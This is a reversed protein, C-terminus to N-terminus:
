RVVQVNFAAGEYKWGAPKEGASATLLHDGNAKNFWRYIPSAGASTAYFAVGEKVWGSVQMLAGEVASVTYMHQGTKRKRYRVVPVTNARPDYRWAIGEYVYGSTHAEAWSTTLLHDHASRARYVTDLGDAPAPADSTFVPLSWAKTSNWSAASQKVSVHIHNTHPDSGRYELWRGDGNIHRDFIVYGIRPDDAIEDALKQWMAVKPTATCDWACVIGASNPNHDSHPEAQHRADGITGDSKESRKPLARDAQARLITLAPALKWAM